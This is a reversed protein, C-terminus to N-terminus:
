LVGRKNLYLVAAATGAMILVTKTSVGSSNEPEDVIKDDIFNFVTLGGIVTLPWLVFPM